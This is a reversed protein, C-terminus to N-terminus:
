RSDLAAHPRFPCGHSLCTAVEQVDIACPPQGMQGPVGLSALLRQFCDADPWAKMPPAHMIATGAIVLVGTLMTHASRVQQPIAAVQIFLFLLIPRQLHM